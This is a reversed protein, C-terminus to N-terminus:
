EVVQIWTIYEAFQPYKAYVTQCAELFPTNDMEVFICGADKAQQEYQSYLASNEVTVREMYEDICEMFVERQAETMKNWCAESMLYISPSIQHCDVTFYKAIEYHGSLVYSGVDNEAADVIGTQLAQFVEGYAMPTAVAGLAEIMSIVIESEQVRIKKGKLADLTDMPCAAYFCRAGSTPNDPSGALFGIAKFGKENVIDLLDRAVDSKMVHYCHIADRYIYPLTLVGVEPVTATFAGLNIRTLEVAGAEVMGCVTSEDGLLGDFYLELQLTGDSKEALKSAFETALEGLVSTSPQNEAFQIRIKKAGDFRSDATVNTCACLMMVTCVTLILVRAMKKMEKEERIGYKEKLFNMGSDSKM